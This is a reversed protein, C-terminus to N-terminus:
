DNIPMAGLATILNKIKDKKIFEFFKKKDEDLNKQKYILNLTVTPFNYKTSSPHNGDLEIVDLNKTYGKSYLGLTIAGRTTSVLDLANQASSTIKANNSWTLNQWEPANKRLEIISSDFEPRAAIRIKEDNGNVEKWNQIKGSFIHAIQQRTLIKVGASKNVYFVIKFKALPTFALGFEKELQTPERGARAIETDGEILQMIGGETHVSPPIIIITEPYEAMFAGAIAQLTSEGNGTGAITLEKASVLNSFLTVSLIFLIFKQM